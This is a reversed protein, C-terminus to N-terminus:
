GQLNLYKGNRDRKNIQISAFPNLKDVGLVLFNINNHNAPILEGNCDVKFIKLRQKKQHICVKPDHFLTITDDPPSAFIKIEQNTWNALMSIDIERRNSWFLIAKRLDELLDFEGSEGHHYIIQNKLFCFKNNGDVIVQASVGTIKASYGKTRKIHKITNCLDKIRMSEPSIKKLKKDSIGEGNENKDIDFQHATAVALSRANVVPDSFQPDLSYPQLLFLHLEDWPKVLNNIFDLRKYELEATM